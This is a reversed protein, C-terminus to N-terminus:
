HSDVPFREFFEKAQEESPRWDKLDKLDEPSLGSPLPRAVFDATAGVGYVYGEPITKCNPITYAGRENLGDGNLKISSSM